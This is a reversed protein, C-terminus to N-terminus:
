ASAHSAAAWPVTLVFSELGEGSGTTTRGSIPEFPNAGPSGGTEATELAQTMAALSYFMEAFEPDAALAHDISAAEPHPGAVRVNGFDDLGLRVGGGTEIGQSAMLARFRAILQAELAGTRERLADMRGSSGASAAVPGAPARGGNQTGAAADTGAGLAEGLLRAFAGAARGMTGVVPVAAAVAGAQSISGLSLLTRGRFDRLPTDTRIPVIPRGGCGFVREQWDRPRSVAAPRRSM